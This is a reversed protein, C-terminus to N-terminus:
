PPPGFPRLIKARPPVAVTSIDPFVFGLMAFSKNFFVLFAGAHVDSAIGFKYFFQEHLSTNQRTLTPFNSLLSGVVDQPLLEDMDQANTFWRFVMGGAPGLVRNLHQYYLSCFLKTAFRDVAETIRPHELSLIPVDRTTMGPGLQMGNRRLWRRVSNASPMLSHYLDPHQEAVARMLNIVERQGAETDASPYMRSLLTIIAEDEAADGNCRNCAPYVYGEPWQRGVFVARPPFHDQTTAPTTGGCYCCNPHESLFKSLRRRQTGMETDL